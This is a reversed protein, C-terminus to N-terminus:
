MYAFGFRAAVEDLERQLPEPLDDPLIELILMKLKGAEWYTANIYDAVRELSQALALPQQDPTPIAIAHTM